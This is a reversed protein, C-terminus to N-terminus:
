REELRYEIFARDRLQRVWEQYSEDSKRARLAMQAAHRQRDRSMDEDRRGIVQIIHWGFPTKVPVSIQGPELANM